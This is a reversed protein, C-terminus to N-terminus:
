LRGDGPGGITRMILEHLERSSSAIVNMRDSAKLKIKLDHGRADTVIAGAERAILVGAAVDTPRVYNRVDAVAQLSGAALYSLEVAIAGLVRIRKVRNIIDMGRGRTYFSVAAKKPECPRVYIPKGDMFAGGGRFAEYTRGTILECIMGYVPEERRFVAMSFAFIPIGHTFNFSGDIPDVVVTVDSGTSIEGMEESVVNVGLPRLREIIVDESVRDVYETVDGSVNKGMVEGAKRTGFLPMVKRKIESALEKGISEWRTDEDESESM